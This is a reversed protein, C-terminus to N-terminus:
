CSICPSFTFTPNFDDIPEEDDTVNKHELLYDHPEGYVPTDSGVYKVYGYLTCTSPNENRFYAYRTDTYTSGFGKLSIEKTRGDPDRYVYGWDNIAETADISVTVSVDFKYDYSQGDNTFAGAEYTSNTVKFETIAPVSKTKFSKTEGLVSLGNTKDVYYAVYNYTTAPKLGTYSYEIMGGDGDTEKKTYREKSDATSYLIMGYENQLKSGDMLSRTISPSIYGRVVVSNATVDKFIGTIVQGQYSRKVDEWTVTRGFRNDFLGASLGVLFNIWGARDLQQAYNPDRLWRIYQEPIYPVAERTGNSILEGVAEYAFTDDLDSHHEGPVFLKNWGSEFTSLGGTITVSGLVIGPISIPTATGLSGVESVISGTVMLAGGVVGAAGSALEVIGSLNRQWNNESWSRRPAYKRSNLNELSLSDVSYAITDNYYITLDVYNEYYDDVVICVENLSIFQPMGNEDFTACSFLVGLDDSPLIAVLSDPINKGAANKTLLYSGDSAIRMESWDGIGETEIFVKTEDASGAMIDIVSSIDAVDVNGDGNIDASELPIDKSGAMVSIVSSIDAVDIAGDGNVDGPKQTPQEGEIAKIHTFKSWPDTSKYADLSAAPVYLTAEEYAHSYFVGWMSLYPVEQAYCYISKLKNCNLFAMEDIFTVSGPITLTTLNTCGEFTSSGINTVNEPIVISELKSCNRFTRDNIITLGSPLNVKTLSSCGDLAADGIYNVSQPLAISSLNTCQYFAYGGINTIGSPIFVGTLNNRSFAYSGINTVRYERGGITFMSLITIDGTASPSGPNWLDVGSKVSAENVGVTYEYNVKTEPDQWVDAFSSLPLLVALLIFFSLITKM